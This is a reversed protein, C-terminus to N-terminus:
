GNVADKGLTQVMDQAAKISRWLARRRPSHRLGPSAGLWPSPSQRQWLVLDAPLRPRQYRKRKPNPFMERSGFRGLPSPLDSSDGIM